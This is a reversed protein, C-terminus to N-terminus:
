DRRLSDRYQGSWRTCRRPSPGIAAISAAHPARVRLPLPRARGRHPNSAPLRSRVKRCASEERRELSIDRPYGRHAGDPTWEAAHAAIMDPYDEKGGFGGGTVSQRVRIAQDGLDFLHTLAKHVYYPCQLSGVIDVGTFVARDDLTPTAIVGHPEIYAHEQREGTQLFWTGSTSGRRGPTRFRRSERLRNRGDTTVVVGRM